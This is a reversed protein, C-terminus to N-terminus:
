PSPVCDRHVVGQAHAEDLAGAVDVLVRGADAPTIARDACLEGLTSGKPMASAVYLGGRHRGAAFVPAIAPHELRAIQIADARAAAFGADDDDFVGPHM